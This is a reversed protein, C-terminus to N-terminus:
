STTSELGIKVKNAFRGDAFSGTSLASGSIEVGAGAITNSGSLVRFYEDHGVHSRVTLARKATVGDSTIEIKGATNDNIQLNLTSSGQVVLQDNFKIENGPFDELDDAHPIINKVAIHRMSGTKEIFASTALNVRGFSGTSTVSGSINGSATIPGELNLSGTIDPAFIKM